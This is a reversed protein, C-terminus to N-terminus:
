RTGIARPQWGRASAMILMPSALMPNGLGAGVYRLADLRHFLHKDVIGPLVTGDPTMPRSYTGLEDRLGKLKDFVFLRGTQFLAVVRDIGVEVDWIDPEQMIIGAAAWEQRWAGESRAGGWVGNLSCGQLHAMVEYAHQAATMGGELSEQYAYYVNATPDYAIYMKATNTGGFDVGISRPWWDPIPFPRVLHGGAERYTDNFVGYILGPPADFQGEYFMRVKWYPMTARVREMEEAPFLPNMTSAFQVVQYNPDGERARDYVESKLWNPAYPTTTILTRGMYLGLRRQIAEWSELRFQRQGAEDLWAAKATASELSESNAASGFMVRTQGDFFQFIRDGATWHGLNLTDRFYRLFEPLMKRRLLPFTATIALYDGPGKRRIERELWLPGLSTKGSQAGALMVVNRAESRMVAIQGPHLSTRIRGTGDSHREVWWPSIPKEPPPLKPRAPSDVVASPPDDIITV